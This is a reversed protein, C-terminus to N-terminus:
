KAMTDTTRRGTRNRKFPHPRACCMRGTPGHLPRNPRLLPRLSLWPSPSRLLRNRRVVSWVSPWRKTPRAVASRVCDRCPSRRMRRRRVGIDLSVEVEGDYANTVVLAPWPMSILRPADSALTATVSLTPRLNKEAEAKLAKADSNDPEWELAKEAAALVASWDERIKAARSEVLAEKAKAAARATRASALAEEYQKRASEFKEKAEGFQSRNRLVAAAERATKAKYLAAPAYRAAEAKELDPAFADLARELEDLEGRVAANDAIWDAAVRVNAAATQAESLDAAKSCGDLVAKGEDLTEFRAKFEGEGAWKRFPEAKAADRAAGAQLVRIAEEDKAAKASARAANLSEEELRALQEAEAERDAAEKAELASVIRGDLSAIGALLSASAESEDPCEGARRADLAHQFRSRAAQLEELLAGESPLAPMDPAARGEPAGGAGEAHSKGDAGEPPSTPLGASTPPSSSHSRTPPRPSSSSSQGPLSKPPGATSLRDLLERMTGRIRIGDAVRGKTAICWNDAGKREDKLLIWVQEDPDAERAIEKWHLPVVTELAPRKSFLPGIWGKRVTERFRIELRDESPALRLAGVVSVAVFAAALWGAHRLRRTMSADRGKALAEVFAKCSPFRAAPDKALARLLAANAGHPLNPIPDPDRSLVARRLLDPDDADFPRAGALMQYALVALAYQDTAPGQPRAEWQEPAMYAPTGSSGLYGKRSVRSLSSRVEAALGFDLLQVRPAGGPEAAPLVKVNGPKVDRHLVKEGHAYDLASALPRLIALAEPLPMPAGHRRRLIASLDEGEALDMVLYYEGFDPDKELNRLGSIASHHLKAVLAYNERIGEMEGENRSLEPPLCKLAVEIGGVSDFCKYVVGMGGEGLESLVTYRGLLVDGARLRQGRPTTRGRLTDMSPMSPPDDDPLISLANM